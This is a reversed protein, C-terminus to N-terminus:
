SLFDIVARVCADSYNVTGDEYVIYSVAVFDRDIQDEPIGILVSTFSLTNSSKTYYNKAVIDLYSTEGIKGNETLVLEAAGLKDAPMILTGMKVVNENSNKENLNMKTLFRIGAEGEPRYQAGTIVPKNTNGFLAAELDNIEIIEFDSTYEDHLLQTFSIQADAIEFYGQTGWALTSAVGNVTLKWDSGDHYIRIEYIGDEAKAITQEGCFGAGNPSWGVFQLTGNGNDLLSLALGPVETAAAVYSYQGGCTGNATIATGAPAIIMTALSYAGIVTATPVTAKFKFSLGNALSGVKATAVAGGWGALDANVGTALTNKETVKFADPTFPVINAHTITSSYNWTPVPAVYDSVFSNAATDNVETLTVTSICGGYGNSNIAFYAYGDENVVGEKAVSYGELLAGNVYIDIKDGNVKFEVTFSSFNDLTSVRDWKVAPGEVYYSKGIANVRNATSAGGHIYAGGDPTTANPKFIYIASNAVDCNMSYANGFAVDTAVSTTSSDTFTGPFATGSLYIIAGVNICSADIVSVNSIGLELKLGDVKVMNSAIVGAQGWSATGSMVIAGNDDVTVSGQALGGTIESWSDSLTGAAFATPIAAFALPLIMIVAVAICLLKRKM